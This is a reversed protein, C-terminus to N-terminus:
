YRTNLLHLLSGMQPEMLQGIEVCDPLSVGLRKLSEPHPQMVGEGFDLDYNRARAMLNAVHVAATTLPDRKARLPEPHCETVEILIEPLRWQRQLTAGVRAYDLGLVEREVEVLPRAQERALQEAHLCEEPISQYLILHGLDCLLGAVFLRDTQAAGCVKGLQQSVLGCFVSGRWFSLLDHLKPDIGGFGHAVATALALDHIQQTGLLSVARPISDIRNALGFYPSNVLRLVRTTLAPDYSITEAV